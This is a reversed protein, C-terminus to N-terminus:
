QIEQLLENAVVSFDEREPTIKFSDYVSKSEAITNEISQLSRIYAKVLYQSYEPHKIIEGMTNFSLNTRGDYKNFVIKFDAHKDYENLMSKLERYTLDLGALSYDTPNIPMVITDSALAAATVAAGISPPCDIIIIDYHNKLDTLPKKFIKDLPWKQLMLTSDLLANDVRSPLIDLGDLVPILASKLPIKETLVDIMVPKDSADIKFTRTLNAQQDLEILAVKAGLLASRVAFNLSIATKGVGGKVLQFSYITKKFKKNLLTKTTEHTFYVRNNSKFSPLEHEKLKKHVYQASSNLIEAAENILMKPEM